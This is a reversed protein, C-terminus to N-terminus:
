LFSQILKLIYTFIKSNKKEFEITIETQKKTKTIKEKTKFVIRFM